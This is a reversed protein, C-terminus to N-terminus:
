SNFNPFRSSPCAAVKFVSLLVVLSVLVVSVLVCFRCWHQVDLAGCQWIMRRSDKHLCSLRKQMGAILMCRVYSAALPWRGSASVLAGLVRSGGLM